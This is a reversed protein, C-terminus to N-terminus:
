TCSPLEGSFLLMSCSNNFLKEIFNEEHTEESDTLVDVHEINKM